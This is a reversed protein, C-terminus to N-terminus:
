AATDVTQERLYDLIDAPLALAMTILEAIATRPRISHRSCYLDFKASDTVHNATIRNAM